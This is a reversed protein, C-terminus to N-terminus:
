ILDTGLYVSIWLKREPWWRTSGKTMVKMKDEKRWERGAGGRERKEVETRGKEKKKKNDIM